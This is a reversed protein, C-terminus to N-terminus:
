ISMRAFFRSMRAEAPEPLVKWSPLRTMPRTARPAAGSRMTASVKVRLAAPSNASETRVLSASAALSSVAAAADARLGERQRVRIELFGQFPHHPGQGAEGEARHVAKEGFDDAAELVFETQGASLEVQEFARAGRRQRVFHEGPDEAVREGALLALLKEMGEPPGGDAPLILAHEVGQTGEDGAPLAAIRSARLRSHPGAAM